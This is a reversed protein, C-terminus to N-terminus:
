SLCAAADMLWHSEDEKVAYIEKTQRGRRVRSERRLVKGEEGVGGGGAGFAEGGGRERGTRRQWNGLREANLHM